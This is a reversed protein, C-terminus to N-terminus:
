TLKRVLEHLPRRPTRAPSESPYGIPLFAVPWFGAPLRLAEQVVEQEHVAGIWVSALGLATAALQAYACAITADQICFLQEGKAGYREASRHPIACFVLVLPAQAVPGQGGSAADLRRRITPNKVVYIEYAQLNGASPARQAAGLIRRVQAQAVPTAAFQRVSQRAHVTDFFNMTLTRDRRKTPPTRYPWRGGARVFACNFRVCDQEKDLCNVIRWDGGVQPTLIAWVTKRRFACSSPQYQLEPTPVKDM